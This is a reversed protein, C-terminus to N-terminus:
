GIHVASVNQKMKNAIDLLERLVREFYNSALFIYFPFFILTLHLSTYLRLELVKGM